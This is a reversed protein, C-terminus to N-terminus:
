AQTKKANLDPVLLVCSCSPCRVKKGVADLPAHVIQGCSCLVGITDTAKVKGKLEPFVSDGESSDSQSTENTDPNQKKRQSWSDKWAIDSQTDGKVWRWFTYSDEDDKIVNAVSLGLGVLFGFVFALPHIMARMKWGFTLCVLPDIVLCAIYVGLATFSYRGWPPTMIFCEVSNNPMFMLCMGIIGGIMWSPLWIRPSYGCELFSLVGGLVLLVALFLVYRINGIRKCLAIGFTWLVFCMWIVYGLLLLGCFFGWLGHRNLAEIEPLYGETCYIFIGAVLVPFLLFGLWPRYRNFVDCSYPLLM